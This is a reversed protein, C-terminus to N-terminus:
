WKIRMLQYFNVDEPQEMGFACDTQDRDVLHTTGGIRQGILGVLHFGLSVVGLHHQFTMNMSAVDTARGPPEMGGAWRGVGLANM